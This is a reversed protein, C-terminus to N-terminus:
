DTLAHPLEVARKIRVKTKDLRLHSDRILEWTIHPIESRRPGAILQVLLAPLVDRNEPKSAEEILSRAQAPSLISTLVEDLEPRRIKATPTEGRWGEEVAFNFLATLTIIYNIRSKPSAPTDGDKGTLDAIFRELQAKTITDVLVGKFEIEVQTLQSKLNALYRPKCNAAKRSALFAAVAKEIIVPKTRPAHKLVYNIAQAVSMGREKLRVLLDDGAAKRVELLADRHAKAATETKFFLRKKTTGTISAAVNLRWRHAEGKGSIVKHDADVKVPDRITNKM